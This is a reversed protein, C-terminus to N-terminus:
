RENQGGKKYVGLVELLTTQVRLDGFLEELQEISEVELDAYFGYMSNKSPVPHSQIKALNIGYTAITTLVMALSGKRHLTQFYLSAKLNGNTEDNSELTQEDSSNTVILFRTYNEKHSEIGESIIELKYREAALRSAIAARGKPRNEAILKASLATDSSEVLKIQPYATFFEKCQHLAMPHSQVETIDEMTQGPLAMLHQEIHLSIEGCIKMKSKRLLNYNPIISGALSNEIALIGYEASGSQINSVAEDFTM